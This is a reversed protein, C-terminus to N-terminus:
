AGPATLRQVERRLVPLLEAEFWPNRKLWATNRWSPHPMPLFRPLHGRWGQVTETMTRGRTRGLYRVQAYSGVLLTLELNPLLAFLKDHWAPACERRPPKDSGHADLGPFCFSMPVIAIRAEDYFVDPGIGMWARLRDGSPDSFPIGSAHVRTGPAQGVVCLRATAGAHVVPRPEHPL